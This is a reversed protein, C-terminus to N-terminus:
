KLIKDSMAKELVFDFSEPTRKYPLLFLQVPLGFPPRPRKISIDHSTLTDRYLKKQVSFKLPTITNSNTENKHDCFHFRVIKIAEFIDKLCKNPNSAIEHSCLEVTPENAIIYIIGLSYNSISKSSILNLYTFTKKYIKSARVGYNFISTNKLTKKISNCVSICLLM